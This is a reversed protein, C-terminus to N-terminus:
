SLLRKFKFVQPIKVTDIGLFNTGDYLKGTVTLTAHTFEDANELIRSVCDITKARDLKVMLDPTGDKDYDGINTPKSEASIKNNLQITAVDIDGVNYGDPLEIYCTVWEGSSELNLSEPDVYVVAYLLLWHKGLLALDCIDIKGDGNFDVESSYRPDGSSSGWASRLLELDHADVKGDRNADGVHYLNVVTAVSLTVLLPMLVKGSLVGRM